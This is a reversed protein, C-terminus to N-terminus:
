NAYSTTPGPPVYETKLVELIAEVFALADEPGIRNGLADDRLVDPSGHAVSGLRRLRAGAM